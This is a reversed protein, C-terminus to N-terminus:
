HPPTCHLVVDVDSAMVSKYADFGAFCRDDTVAYKEGIQRQLTQKCREIQDPFADALVTLKVNKDARMANVAAGTGRGGCGILAVKLPKETGAAHATRSLALTAGVSGAVVATTSTSLFDRRSPELTTMAPDKSHSPSALTYRLRSAYRM